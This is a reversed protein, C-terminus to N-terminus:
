LIGKEVAALVSADIVAAREEDGVIEDYAATRESLDSQEVLQEKAFVALAHLRESRSAGAEVLGGEVALELADALEPDLSTYVRHKAAM